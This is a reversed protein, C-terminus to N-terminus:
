DRNKGASYDMGVVLVAHGSGLMIVPHGKVLLDIVCQTDSCFHPNTRPRDYRLLVTAISFTIQYADAGATQDELRPCIKQAESVLDGQSVHHLHLFDRAFELTAAWCDNPKSQQM